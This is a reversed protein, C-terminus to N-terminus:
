FVHKRLWAFRSSRKKSKELEMELEQKKRELEEIFAQASEEKSKLRAVEYDLAENQHRLAGVQMVAKQHVLATAQLQARTQSLAQNSVAPGQSGDGKATPTKHGGELPTVPASERQTSVTDPESWEEERDSAKALTDQPESPNKDSKKQAQRKLVAEEEATLNLFDLVNRATIEGKPSAAQVEALDVNHSEALKQALHSATSDSNSL